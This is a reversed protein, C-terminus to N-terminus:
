DRLMRGIIFGTVAAVAVIALPRARVHAEVQRVRREVETALEGQDPMLAPLQM